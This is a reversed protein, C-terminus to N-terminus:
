PKTGILERFGVAIAVAVWKAAFAPWLVAIGVARQDGGYPTCNMFTFLAIFFYGLISLGILVPM